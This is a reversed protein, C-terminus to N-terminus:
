CAGPRGRIAWCEPSKGARNAPRYHRVEYKNSPLVEAWAAVERSDADGGEHGPYVVVTLVGGPRLWGLADVLATMTTETKTICSKDHGPLWGLNFMVAALRGRAEPPLQLAMTEHGAHILTCQDACKAAVVRSRTSEIAAAQVDFAFVCGDVGVLQALFVTDHGNGATGDVVWDGAAVRCRLIEHALDVSTPLAHPDPVPM